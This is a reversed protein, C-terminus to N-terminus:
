PEDSGVRDKDAGTSFGKPRNMTNKLLGEYPYKSSKAQVPMYLSKLRM